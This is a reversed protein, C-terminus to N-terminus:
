IAGSEAGNNELSRAWASRNILQRRVEDRLPKLRPDRVTELYRKWGIRPDNGWGKPPIWSRWFKDAASQARRNSPAPDKDQNFFAWVEAIVAACTYKAPMDTALLPKGRGTLLKGDSGVLQPAKRAQRASAALRSLLNKLESATEFDFDSNTNLFTVMSSDNLVGSLKAALCAGDVLQNFMESRTPWMTQISNASCVRFSFDSLLDRLWSPADRVIHEGVEQMKAKHAAEKEKGSRIVVSVQVGM